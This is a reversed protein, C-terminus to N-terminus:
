KSICEVREDGVDWSFKQDFGEMYDRSGDPRLKYRKIVVLAGGSSYLSSIEITCEWLEHSDSCMSLPGASMLDLMQDASMKREFPEEEFWWCGTLSLCLVFLALAAFFRNM